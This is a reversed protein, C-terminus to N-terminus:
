LKGRKAERVPLNNLTQTIDWNVPCLRICRGCGTCAIVNFNMPFFGFKHCVKQRVRKWKEQRPNEMPMKTYIPFACSDLSRFRTGQQRVLEDNIDFCYCTPCLLTCIGCSICKAAVKEWFDQDDFGALLKDVIGEANIKRTVKNYSTEKIEKARTEDDKTAEKLGSTKATLKKGKDTVEEVLFEDGIDTLMLDVDNSDAPSIGLSTCFCSDYPKTCGVGVLVARSRKPLYYPDQYLDKFNADITTLARADCPRIGFILQKGGNLPLEINYGERDKRFSFMEEMPPLFNAKPPIVTNRYWDLFGTDKGEWRAMTAVGSEISPVFVAFEQSWQSLLKGIDRKNVKKSNTM